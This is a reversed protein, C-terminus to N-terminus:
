LAEIRQTTILYIIVPGADVGTVISLGSRAVKSADGM